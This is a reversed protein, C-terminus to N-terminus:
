IRRYPFFMSDFNATCEVSGNIKYTVYDDTSKGPMKSILYPSNELTIHEPIFIVQNFGFELILHGALFERLQPMDVKLCVTVFVVFKATVTRRDYDVNM